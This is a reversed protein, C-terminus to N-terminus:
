GRWAPRPRPYPAIPSPEDPPAPGGSVRTVAAPDTRNGPCILAPCGAPLLQDAIAHRGASVARDALDRGAAQLDVKAAHGPAMVLYATTLWFV